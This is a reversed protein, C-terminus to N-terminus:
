CAGGCACSGGGGGALSLSPGRSAVLGAYRALMDRTPYQGTLVTTGNVLVLPLNESGAAELFNVVVPNQVFAQPDNALNHRKIQVGLAKFYEADATFEVLSQDVDPGCVGTNCCLAPEFVEIDVM